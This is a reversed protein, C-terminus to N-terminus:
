FIEFKADAKQWKEVGRSDIVRQACGPCLRVILLSDEEDLVKSLNWRLAALKTKTLHVRFISLQLHDGCGKLIKYAKAWRKPDRIDYCVLHWHKEEGM